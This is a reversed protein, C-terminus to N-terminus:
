KFIIVRKAKSILLQNVEEILHNPVKFIDKCNDLLVTVVKQAKLENFAIEKDACLISRTFTM